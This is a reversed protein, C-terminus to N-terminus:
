LIKKMKFANLYQNLWETTSLQLDNSGSDIFETM